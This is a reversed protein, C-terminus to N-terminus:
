HTVLARSILNPVEFSTGSPTRTCRLLGRLALAHLAKALEVPLRDLRRCLADLSWAQGAEALHHLLAAHDPSLRDLCDRVARRWGDGAPQSPSQAISVPDQRAAQLLQPWSLVLSWDAAHGIAAPMGDLLRCIEGVMGLEAPQLRLDPRARRAHSVFLAVAPHVALEHALGTLGALDQTSVPLGSLPLVQEDALALPATSCHLIRLAPDARRASQVVDAVGPRDTDLVLLSVRSDTASAAAPDRRVSWGLTDFRRAVEDLLRSKGTGPLGVVTILRQHGAILLDQLITLEADRGLLTTPPQRDAMQETAAMSPSFPLDPGPDAAQDAAQLFEAQGAPGLRLAGALLRVTDRRPRRVRGAELDRLARVSLAALDALEQQTLGARFRATRVLEPFAPRTRPEPPASM